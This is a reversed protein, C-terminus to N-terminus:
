KISINKFNPNPLAIYKIKLLLSFLFSKTGSTSKAVKLFPPIAIANVSKNNPLRAVIGNAILPIVVGNYM